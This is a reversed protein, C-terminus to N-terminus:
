QINNNESETLINWFNTHLNNVMAKIEGLTKQPYQKQIHKLLGVLEDLNLNDIFWYHQKNNKLIRANIEVIRSEYDVFEEDSIIVQKVVFGHVDDKKRKIDFSVLRYGKYTITITYQNLRTGFLGQSNDIALENLNKLIHNCLAYMNYTSEGVLINNLKQELNQRDM